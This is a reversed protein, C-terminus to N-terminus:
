VLIYVYVSPACRKICTVYLVLLVDIVLGPYAPSALVHKQENNNFHFAHAYRPACWPVRGRRAGTTESLAM